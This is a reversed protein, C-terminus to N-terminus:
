AGAHRQLRLELRWLAWCRHCASYVEAELRLGEAIGAGRLRLGLCERAALCRDVGALYRLWGLGAGLLGVLRGGACGLWGLGCEALRAWM